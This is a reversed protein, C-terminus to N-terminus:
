KYTKNYEGVTRRTNNKTKKTPIIHEDIM